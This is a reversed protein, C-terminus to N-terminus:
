REEPNIEKTIDRPKYLPFGREKTKRFVVANDRVSLVFGDSFKDGTRIKYPFGQPGKIIGSIRGKIKIIGILILDDISMESIGGQAARDKLDAGSLLNRFPDRRGAPNYTFSRQQLISNATVEVSEKEQTEQAAAPLFSWGIITAALLIYFIKKMKM